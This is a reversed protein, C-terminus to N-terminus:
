NGSMAEGKERPYPSASPQLGEIKVVVDWCSPLRMRAGPYKNGKAKRRVTKQVADGARNKRGAGLAEAMDFSANRRVSGPSARCSWPGPRLQWRQGSKTQRKGCESKAIYSYCAFSGSLTRSGRETMMPPDFAVSVDSKTEPSPIM